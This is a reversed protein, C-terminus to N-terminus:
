LLSAARTCLHVPHKRPLLPGQIRVGNAESCIKQSLMLLSLLAEKSAPKYTLILLVAFM